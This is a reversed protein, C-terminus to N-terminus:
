KRLYLDKFLGLAAKSKRKIESISKFSILEKSIRWPNFYFKKLANNRMEILEETTFNETWLLPIFDKQPQRAFKEWYDQKQYGSKLSWDYIETGPMPKLISYTVYDPKIKEIFNLTKEYDDKNWGPAGIILYALTSIGAERTLKFANEIQELTIGKKLIDLIKQSGSEVGYQIRNCGALSVKKLMKETVKEVRARFSWKIKLGRSIIEDCISMVRNESYNFTDDFIDFEKIGLKICDEIEDVVNVSSRLRLKDYSLQCFTCRYPCGRSTIMSTVLSTKSVLSFYKKFPLMQRAPFPLSDLDYIYYEKSLPNIQRYKDKDSFFVGCIEEKKNRELSDLLNKFAIEGDGVVISDVEPLSLTQKPYLNVHPGGICVHIDKNNEKVIRATVLSDFFSTTQATIGVIDPKERNIIKKIQPYDMKEVITDLIIIEHETWRRLYAALYMLGLPQRVQMDMEVTEPLDCIQYKSYNILPPYILLIKM